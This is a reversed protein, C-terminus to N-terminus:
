IAATNASAGSSIVLLTPSGSYVSLRRNHHTWIDPCHSHVHQQGDETEIRADMGGIHGSM